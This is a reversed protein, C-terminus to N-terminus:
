RRAEARPEHSHLESGAADYDMVPRVEVTGGPMPVRKAWSLADDLDTCDLLYYGGLQEKTEAFPGDSVIPDGSEPIRVTTATASPALGEGGLHVGAEITQRTYDDWAKMVATMQEPPREAARREDTFLTLLYKM